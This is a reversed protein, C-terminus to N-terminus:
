LIYSHQGLTKYAYFFASTELMKGLAVVKMFVPLEPSILTLESLIDVLGPSFDIFVFWNASMRVLLPLKIFILRKNSCREAHLCSTKHVDCCASCKLQPELHCNNNCIAFTCQSISNPFSNCLASSLTNTSSRKKFRKPVKSKKLRISSFFFCLFLIFKGEGRLSMVNVKWYVTHTHTNSWWILVM